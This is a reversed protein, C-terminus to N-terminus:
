EWKTSNVKRASLGCLWRLWSPTNEQRWEDAAEAMEKAEVEARSPNIAMAVIRPIADQMHTTRIGRERMKGALWKSMCARDAARESRLPFELRVAAIWVKYFQKSARPDLEFFASEACETHVEDAVAGEHELAALLDNEDTRKSRREVGRAVEIVRASARPRQRYRKLLWGTVVQYTTRLAFYSLIIFSTFIIAVLARTSSGPQSGPIYTCVLEGDVMNCWDPMVPQTGARGM